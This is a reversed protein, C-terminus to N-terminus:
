HIETPPNTEEQKSTPSVLKGRKFSGAEELNELFTRVPRYFLPILLVLAAKWYEDVMEMLGVFRGQHGSDFLFCYVAFGVLCAISLVILLEIVSLIWLLADPITDKSLNM